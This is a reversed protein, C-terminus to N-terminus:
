RFVMSLATFSCEGIGNARNIQKGALRAAFVRCYQLEGGLLLKCNPLWGPRSDLLSVNTYYLCYHQPVRFLPPTFRTSSNKGNISIVERM